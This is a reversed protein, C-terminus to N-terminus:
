RQSFTKSTLTRLLFILIPLIYYQEYTSWKRYGELFPAIDSINLIDGKIYRYVLREIPCMTSEQQHYFDSSFIYYGRLNKGHLPTGEESFFLNESLGYGIYQTVMTGKPVTILGVDLFYVNRTLPSSGTFVPPHHEMQNVCDELLTTDRELLADYFTQEYNVVYHNYCMKSYNFDENVDITSRIFRMLYEDIIPAKEIPKVVGIGNNHPLRANLALYNTEADIFKNFYFSIMQRRITKLNKKIRYDEELLIPAGNDLVYDLDYVFRKTVRQELAKYYHETQPTLFFRHKFTLRYVTHTQYHEQSCDLCEFVAKKGGILEGIVVDFKFPVIGINIVCTFSLNNVQTVELPDTLYIRCDKIKTYNQVHSSVDPNFSEPKTNVDGNLNYYEVHWKYGRIYQTISTEPLEDATYNHSLQLDEQTVFPRVEGITTPQHESERIMQENTFKAM